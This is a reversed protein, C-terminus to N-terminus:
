LLASLRATRVRIRRSTQPPDAEPGAIHVEAPRQLGACLHRVAPACPYVFAFPFPPTGRCLAPASFSGNSLCVVEGSPGYGPDCTVQVRDGISGAISGYNSKNSHAVHTPM